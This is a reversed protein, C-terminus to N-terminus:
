HTVVVTKVFGTWRITKGATGIVKVVITDNVDDAEVTASWTDDTEAVVVENTTNILVTSGVTRDALGQIRFACHDTGSSDRGVIDAEFMITSDEPILMRTSTGNLFLETQSGDVTTNYLVYLKYTSFTNTGNNVTLTGQSFISGDLSSTNSSSAVGGDFYIAQKDNLKFFVPVNREGTVPPTETLKGPNNNDFYFYPGTGALEMDIREGAPNYRFTDPTPNEVEVVTGLVILDTKEFLKYKNEVTDYTILDGVSLTLQDAGSQSVTILKHSRQYDFRSIIETGYNEVFGVISSSSDSYPYLIPRGEVVEFVIGPNGKIYALSNQTSDQQQNLRFEDEVVISANSATQSNIGVIKMIRGAGETTVYDGVNVDRLDYSSSESADSHTQPNDQILSAQFRYILGNSDVPEQAGLTFTIPLLKAPKLLAM